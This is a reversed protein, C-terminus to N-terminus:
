VRAASMAWGPKHEGQALGTSIWPHWRGDAESPMMWMKVQANHWSNWINLNERTGEQLGRAPVWLAHAHTPTYHPQGWTDQGHSSLAAGSSLLFVLNDGEKPYHPWPIARMYRYSSATPGPERFFQTSYFMVAHSLQIFFLQSFYSQPQTLSLPFFLV